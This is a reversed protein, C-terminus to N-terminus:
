FTPSLIPFQSPVIIFWNWILLSFKVSDPDSGSVEPKIYWRQCIPPGGIYPQITWNTLASTRWVLPRPNLGQNLWIKKAWRFFFAELIQCSRVSKSKIPSMFNILTSTSTVFNTTYQRFISSLMWCVRKEPWKDLQPTGQSKHSIIALLGTSDSHIPYTTLIGLSSTCYPQPVSM